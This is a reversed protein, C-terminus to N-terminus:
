VHARGIEVKILVGGFLHNGAGPQGSYFIMWAIFIAGVFNGLYVVSWNRLLGTLRIRRQSLPLLMMTNGTFLEGGALVVLMLGGPFIGGALCRGLGYTTPDALLNFAAMMSANAAFAIYVGALIGLVFLRRFSASAKAVGAESVTQAIELM